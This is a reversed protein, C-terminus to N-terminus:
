ATRRQVYNISALNHQRMEEQYFGTSATKDWEAFTERDFGRAAKIDQPLGRGLRSAVRHVLASEGAASLGDITATEMDASVRPDTPLHSVFLDCVYAAAAPRDLRGNVELDSEEWLCFWRPVATGTGSIHYNRMADIEDRSLKRLFSGDFRLRISDVSKYVRATPLAFSDSGAILTLGSALEVRMGPLKALELNYADCLAMDAELSDIFPRHSDDERLQKLIRNCIARLTSM